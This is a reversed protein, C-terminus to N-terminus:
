LLQAAPHHTIKSRESAENCWMQVVHAAYKCCKRTQKRTEHQLFKADRGPLDWIVAKFNLIEPEDWAIDVNQHWHQRRFYSPGSPGSPGSPSSPSSPGSPGSPNIISM